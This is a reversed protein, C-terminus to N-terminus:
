MAFLNRDRIDNDDPGYSDPCQEIQGLIANLSEAYVEYSPRPLAESNKRRLYEERIRDKGDPLIGLIFNEMDDPPFEIARFEYRYDGRGRNVIRRYGSEDFTIITYRGRHAVRGDEELAQITINGYSDIPDSFPTDEVALNFVTMLVQKVYDAGLGKWTSGTLVIFFDFDYGRDIGLRETALDTIRRSMPVYYFNMGKPFSEMIDGVAYNIGALKALYFSSKERDAYAFRAQM